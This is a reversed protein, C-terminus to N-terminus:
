IEDVEPWQKVKQFTKEFHYPSLFVIREDSDDLGGKLDKIATWFEKLHCDQVFAFRKRGHRETM